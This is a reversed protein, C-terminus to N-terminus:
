ESPLQVSGSVLGLMRARAIAERRNKVGLKRFISQSYKKITNVSVTLRDAIQQNTLRKTMLNLVETERFTLSAAIKSGQMVTPGSSPAAAEKTLPRSSDYAALIRAVHARQINRTLLQELLPRLGPGADVFSRVVGGPAALSVADSLEQLAAESEDRLMHLLATMVTADIWLRDNHMQHARERFATLTIAAEPFDHVRGGNLAIRVATLAPIEWNTTSAQRTINRQRPIAM